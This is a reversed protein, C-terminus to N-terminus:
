RPAHPNSQHTYPDISRHTPSGQPHLADNGVTCWVRRQAYMKLFIRYTPSANRGMMGTARTVKEYTTAKM